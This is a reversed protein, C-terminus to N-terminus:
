VDLSHLNRSCDCGAVYHTNVQARWSDARHNFGDHKQGDDRDDDHQQEIVGVTKV